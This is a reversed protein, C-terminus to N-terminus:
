RELRRATATSSTEAAQLAEEATMSREEQRRAESKLHELQQPPPLLAHNLGGPVEATHPAPMWSPM